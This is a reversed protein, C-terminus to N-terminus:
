PTVVYAANLGGVRAPAEKYPSGEHNVSKGPVASTRYTRTAGPTGDFKACGSGVALLPDSEGVADLDVPITPIAELEADLVIGAHDKADSAAVTRFACTEGQCKATYSAHIVGESITAERSSPNPPRASGGDRAAREDNMAGADVDSGDGARGADPDGAGVD